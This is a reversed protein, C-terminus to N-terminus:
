KTGLCKYLYNEDDICNICIEFKKFIFFIDEIEKVKVEMESKAFAKRMGVTM